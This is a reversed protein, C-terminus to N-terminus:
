GLQEAVMAKAKELADAIKSADKGGAQAMNPRGGGGGGCVAAAAKIINGAHVGKKVVDDTAMAMLNVKGDKGSALVVVGSGLKQKLQDGMTRLANGDMDKVEAALVAVGGIEVKSNLMEDAAGGAMKAKLKELEKATEKQEALLQELRALLKDPTSKVLRCIEKIEDEQAQYHKLAEKGTVAEIRRVGAAVGNESLIKFSGVQATNKLHAGGCLEISYGGMDVVRVVEGYKEGFLAMAGRNRAEDISMEDTHVDYSAFIADNVLREVEKIEDATMAAFHTFDFRLREASVYSGAQEVHTGLVTRLAKHLLHTASHNRSSAMRLEVDISACAMEGVQVLGETVEGMHAIKGGVVKVCNTVKVVGTETKIVGQDGVQGGSEAYFPTRDLFVAVTDGAQATEAVAENAVLAVIKANAVDYVDYGAFATELEVPLENYVTEAAGMYNSKARASRAREKQAKMEATFADEDIEMGEEALIEKTLDVPFGYTDYLRFSKEGSMVKEGAAKMEEMDAKLIEMGKDITKYFSNEEISLIKFIYDQKEVLEPYAEGSCAIVSKSLEALFEGEIGLLKGHRAARRLLRRLVYGRGENSPLVGDATMMTVSRIHDTIVRVSVDTKHDKGYEVGAKACVADRISKVTDVDFISDVGQMITAMRELGMGTDVNKMALETYTGDEEANFQTLVLNWFEMYRDCDCGVGCTPSDCGYEPGRDYYIETCPGCPGTGHEWFNDEKGLKVIRDWPLGVVDHWIKGTEDDEEYITVYLRDEPIELVKTVFEWSWPVIENKFYDGFSFDGLMEFFTGHRATKGVNDIDGTRICKQCTTVRKSPPIEQGTFYAKMPAMGSNILLLSNDNRPVLPFSPLRLHDKSEFFKLFEERIENVGLYKM